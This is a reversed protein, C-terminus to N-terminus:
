VTAGHEKRWYGDKELPNELVTLGLQRLHEQAGELDGRRLANPSHADVGVVALVNERAAVEWFENCPYGLQGPVPTHNFGHLNYELPIHLRNAERCLIESVQRADADFQHYSNLMVDPHAMYLFLGTEMGKVATELYHWLERPETLKGAFQEFEKDGHNGLIMYDLRSRLERLFPFFREVAECELGLRIDIKDKYAERLTTVSSIYDELYEMEMKDVNYFGNDYPFPTHDAFGLIDYGMEIAAQVYEEDTGRAHHCRTTHTHLNVKM